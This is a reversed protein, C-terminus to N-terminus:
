DTPQCAVSPAIRRCVRKFEKGHMDVGIGYERWTQLHAFEHLAVNRAYAPDFDFAARGIVILERGSSYRAAAAAGGRKLLPHPGRAFEIDPMPGGWGTKHHAKAIPATIERVREIPMGKTGTVKFEYTGAKPPEVDMMGLGMAMIAVLGIKIRSEM